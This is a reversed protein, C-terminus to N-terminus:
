NMTPIGHEDTTWYSGQGDINFSDDNFGCTAYGNVDALAVTNIVTAPSGPVTLTTKLLVNEFKGDTWCLCMNGFGEASIVCNAILGHTTGLYASSSTDTEFVPKGNPWNFQIDCDKITGYIEKGLLRGGSPLVSNEDNHNYVIKTNKLVGFFNEVFNCIGSNSNITITHGNGNFEHYFDTFVTNINENPLDITIDSNLKVNSVEGTRYKTVYDLFDVEDNVTTTSEVFKKNKADLGYYIGDNYFGKVGVEDIAREIYNKAIWEKQLDTPQTESADNIAMQAIYLINRDVQNETMKITTSGGDKLTCNIYGVASFERALNNDKINTISAYLKASKDDKDLENSTLNIIRTKGKQTYSGNEAWDYIANEGFVNEQTLQYTSPAILIGFTVKSYIENNKNKTNKQYAM